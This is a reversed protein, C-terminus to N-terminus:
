LETRFSKKERANLPKEIKKITPCVFFILSFLSITESLLALLAICECFIRNASLWFGNMPPFLTCSKSRSNWVFSHRFFLFVFQPCLFRYVFPDSFFMIKIEVTFRFFNLFSNYNSFFTCLTLYRTSMWMIVLCRVWPWQMSCIPCLRFPLFM